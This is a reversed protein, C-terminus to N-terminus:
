RTAVKATKPNITFFSKFSAAMRRAHWLESGNDNVKYRKYLELREAAQNIIDPVDVKMGPKLQLPKSVM